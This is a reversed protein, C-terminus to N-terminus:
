NSALAEQAFSRPGDRFTDRFINRWFQDLVLIKALRGEASACWAFLECRAAAELTAGLREPMTADLASDKIFHQKDTLEEFWFHLIFEPQM